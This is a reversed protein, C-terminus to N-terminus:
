QGEPFCWTPMCIREIILTASWSRSFRLTTYARRRKGWWALISPFMQAASDGVDWTIINGDPLEYTKEKDSSESSARQRFGFRHFRVEGERAIESEATTIFSYGREMLIRMLYESLDFTEFMRERNAKPNIPAATLLVPHEEPAVRLEYAHHWIDGMDDWNTVAGHEIPYKRSASGGQDEDELTCGLGGDGVACWREWARDCMLGGLTLRAWM